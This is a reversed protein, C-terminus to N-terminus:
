YEDEALDGWAETIQDYLKQDALIAERNDKYLYGSMKIQAHSFISITERVERFLFRNLLRFSSKEVEQKAVSALQNLQKLANYFTLEMAVQDKESLQSFEKLIMKVLKKFQKRNKRMDLCFRIDGAFRNAAANHNRLHTIFDNLVKILSELQNFSNNNLTLNMTKKM